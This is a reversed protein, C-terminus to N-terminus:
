CISPANLLLKLVGLVEALREQISDRDELFSTMITILCDTSEGLLPGCELIIKRNGPPFSVFSNTLKSFDLELQCVQALHKQSDAVAENGSFPVSAASSQLFLKCFMLAVNRRNATSEPVTSLFGNRLM